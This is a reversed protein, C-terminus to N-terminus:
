SSVVNPLGQELSGLQVGWHAEENGEEMIFLRFFGKKRFFALFKRLGGRSFKAVSIMVLEWKENQEVEEMQDELFTEPLPFSGVPNLRFLVVLSEKEGQEDFYVEPLTDRNEMERATMLVSPFVKEPYFLGIVPYEVRSMDEGMGVRIESPQVRYWVRTGKREDHIFLAKM